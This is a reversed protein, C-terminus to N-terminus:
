AAALQALQDRDPKEILHLPEILQVMRKQKELNAMRALLQSDAGSLRPTPEITSKHIKLVEAVSDVIFGTRIGDILLVIIRQQDSRPVSELGLRRRLEMVPLVAGRLNIVGEVAPPAKPVRTLEASVRVIEQVSAIPVGFEEKGLRFVVVQEEDDNIEGDDDHANADNANTM